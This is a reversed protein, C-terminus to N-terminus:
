LRLALSAPASLGYGLNRRADGRPIWGILQLAFPPAFILGEKPAAFNQRCVNIMQFFLM